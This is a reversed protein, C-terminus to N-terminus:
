GAALRSQHNGHSQRINQGDTRVVRVAKRRLPRFDALRKAFLVAGLNTIHWKDGKGQAIMEEVALASLIGVRGEPLPLSLLDFYAPYDLMKLVDEAPVNEAAIEKEFPTRDFVRWLEREKESFEKLKKKYSGIRSSNLSIRFLLITHSLNFSLFLTQRLNMNSNKYVM